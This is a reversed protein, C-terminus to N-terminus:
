ALKSRKLLLKFEGSNSAKSLHTPYNYFAVDGDVRGNIGPIEEYSTRQWMGAKGKYTFRDSWLLLNNSISTKIM